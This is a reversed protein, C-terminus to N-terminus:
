RRENEFSRRESKDAKRASILRIAIITGDEDEEMTHIVFLLTGEVEGVTEYRQEGREIRNKQTFHFPDNFVYRALEFSIGHKQINVQNKARSWSFRM